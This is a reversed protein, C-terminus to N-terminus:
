EFGIYRTKLVEGSRGDRYYDDSSSNHQGKAAPEVDALHDVNLSRRVRPTRGPKGAGAGIGVVWRQDRRVRLWVFVSMFICAGGGWILRHRLLIYDQFFMDSPGFPHDQRRYCVLFYKNESIKIYM